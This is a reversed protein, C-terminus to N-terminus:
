PGRDVGVLAAHTARKTGRSRSANSTLHRNTRNSNAVADHDSGGAIGDLATAIGRRVRLHDHQTADRM